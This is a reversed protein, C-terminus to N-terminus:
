NLLLCSVRGGGFDEAGSIAIHHSLDSRLTTNSGLAFRASNPSMRTPTPSGCVRQGPIMRFWFPANTVQSETLGPATRGVLKPGVGVRADRDSLWAVASAVFDADYDRLMLGALRYNMILRGTGLFVHRTPHAGGREVAVAASIPGKRDRAADFTLDAEGRITPLDTEVWGEPSTMVLTTVALFAGVSFLGVTWADMSPVERRKAVLPFSM